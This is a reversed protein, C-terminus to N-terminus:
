QHLGDVAPTGGGHDLTGVTLDLDLWPAEQNVDISPAFGVGLSDGICELLASFM